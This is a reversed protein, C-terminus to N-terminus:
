NAKFRLMKRQAPLKKALHPVKELYRDLAELKDLELTFPEWTAEEPLYGEWIVHLLLKRGEFKHENIEEVVYEDDREAAVQKLQDLTLSTEFVRLRDAHISHTKGSTLNRVRYVNPSKDPGICWMPGLLTSRRGSNSAVLVATDQLEIHDRSPSEGDCLQQQVVRNVEIRRRFLELSVTDDSLEDLTSDQEQDYLVTWPSMGTTSNKTSNLIFQAHPILKTWDRTKCETMLCKLHKKLEANQREVVGQSAPRYPTGIHHKMSLKEVM